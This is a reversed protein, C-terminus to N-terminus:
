EGPVACETERLLVLMWARLGAWNEPTLRPMPGGAAMDLLIRCQRAAQVDSEYDALLGGEDLYVLGVGAILADAVSPAAASVGAHALRALANTLAAFFRPHAAGPLLNELAFRALWCAGAFTSPHRAVGSFDSVLEAQQWHLLDSRGPRYCVDLVRFLDVLPFERRGLRRAGRVMFHLQGHEPAIGAVVMSTDSFPTKRLILFPTRVTRDGGLRDHAEANSM